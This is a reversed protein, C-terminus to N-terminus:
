SLLLGTTQLLVSTLSNLTPRPYEKKGRRALNGLCLTGCIVLDDREEDDRAEKSVQYEKIWQVMKAIFWGGAPDNQGWLVDMQSDEGSVAVIAKIVAAKCVGLAKKWEKDHAGPTTQWYPIPCASEVFRIMHAFPTDPDGSALATTSAKGGGSSILLLARVRKEEASLTEVLM